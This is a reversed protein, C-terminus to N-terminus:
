NGYFWSINANSYSGQYRIGNKIRDLNNGSGSVNSVLHDADSGWVLINVGHINGQDPSRITNNNVVINDAPYQNPEGTLYIGAGYTRSINNNYIQIAYGGVVSIGRGWPQGNGVNDHINIDHTKKGDTLYSVVAYMDDGVNSAYNYAVVVNYAGNTNHYADALTNLVRNNTILGNNGGWNLVGASGARDITVKDVVFNAAGPQIFVAASEGTSLRASTPPGSPLECLPCTIKLSRIEAGSGKLIIAMSAKKAAVLVSSDGDGRAKLGDLTLTSSYNYTATPFYLGKNQSKAATIAARIASDTTGYQTLVNIETTTEGVSVTVSATASGSGGSCTLSYTSTANLAGTSTSGSTPKAGSWAGSATCSTANASSWSLTSSDGATVTTPSASLAVTPAPATTDPGFFVTADLYLIVNCNSFSAANTLSISLNHTGAALDKVATFGKWSTSNATTSLLTVGDLSVTFKAWGGRCKNGHASVTLSASPSPLSVSASVAGNTSLQVAQGASAKPDSIISAGAPLSMQEAQVTAIVPGLAYSRWLLYGGGLLAFVLGFILLQALSFHKETSSFHLKPYRIKVKRDTKLNFMKTNPQEDPQKIPPM